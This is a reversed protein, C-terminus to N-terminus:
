RPPLLDDVAVSFRSGDPLLLDVTDGRRLIRLDAYSGRQRDPNERVELADGVLNQILYQRIGARAYNLLKHTRDKRLTEDSAEIVCSIDDGTPYDDYDDASGRVIAGDPEPEGFPSLDVPAQSRLHCGHTEFRGNLKILRQTAKVHQPGSGMYDGKSKFPRKRLMVGSILEVSRDELGADVMAHYMQTTVPVYEEGGAIVDRLVDMSEAPAAPPLDDIQRPPLRYSVRTPGPLPAPALTM